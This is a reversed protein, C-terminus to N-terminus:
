RLHATDNVLRVLAPGDPYWDAESLGATDLQLRFVASAPAGLASCLLLKVPTVHSV